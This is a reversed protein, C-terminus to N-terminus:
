SVLEMALLVAGTVPRVGLPVLVAGPCHHRIRAAFRDAFEGGAAHVGGSTVLEILHPLYRRHPCNGANISLNKGM